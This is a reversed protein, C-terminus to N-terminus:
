HDLPEVYLTQGSSSSRHVVGRLQSKKQARLPVVFRDGRVTIIEDQASEEGSVQRLLHRLSTLILRRQKEIEQRIRQLQASARDDLDGSPLLKGSWQRVLPEFDGIREAVGALLPFKRRAPVLAARISVAAELLRLLSIIQAIELASGEM